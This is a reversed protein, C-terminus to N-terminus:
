LKIGARLILNAYTDYTVGLVVKKHEFYGGISHGFLTSETQIGNTNEILYNFGFLANIYFRSTNEVKNLYLRAGVLANTSHFYGQNGSLFSGNIKTYSYSLQGETSLHNTLVYSPNVGIHVGLGNDLIPKTIGLSPLLDLKKDQGWISVPLFIFFLIKKLHKM